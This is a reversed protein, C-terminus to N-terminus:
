VLPKQPASPLMSLFLEVNNPLPTTGLVQYAKTWVADRWDSLANADAKFQPNNAASYSVASLISDYGWENSVTNLLNTTANQCIAILAEGTPAPYDVAIPYGKKNSTILKGQSQQELLNQWVEDTIEVADQPIASNIQKDYFANTSAAYFKTM